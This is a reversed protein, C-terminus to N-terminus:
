TSLSEQAQDTRSWKDHEKGSDQLKNKNCLPVMRSWEDRMLGEVSSSSSVLLIFLRSTRTLM